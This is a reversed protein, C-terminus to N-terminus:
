APAEPRKRVKQGVNGILRRRRKIKWKVEARSRQRRADFQGSSANRYRAVLHKLDHKPM